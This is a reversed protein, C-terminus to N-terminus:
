KAATVIQGGCQLLAAVTPDVSPVRFGLMTAGGNLRPPAVGEAGPYIEIVTGGIQASYHIPGSGHQEQAFELGLARYFALTQELKGTRLVLLSLAPPTM